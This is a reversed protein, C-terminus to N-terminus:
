RAGALSAILLRVIRRGVEVMVLAAATVEALITSNMMFTHASLPALVYHGLSDLGIAAYVILVLLGALRLGRSLLLWGALGIASMAVWALYVDMRAWSRPLNPYDGIFEANHTFHVLSAAAYISLLTPLVRNSAPNPEIRHM